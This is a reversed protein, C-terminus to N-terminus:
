KEISKRQARKCASVPNDKWLEELYEIKERNNKEHEELSAIWQDELKAIDTGFVKQWPRGGRRSERYFAKVKEVGYRNLLFAGFSGAEVYSAHQRKRDSVAPTAGKFSMGWDEHKEGLDALPIFSGTRRLAVVWSDNAFGCMPFSLKSGFREETPIGMMNRVLKDQTPFLAHTLKHVMEQPEKIGFVHVVSRRQGNRNEIQFVSFSYGKHEKYLELLVKERGDAMVTMSWFNAAKEYSSEARQSFQRLEEKTLQSDEDIVVLHATEVSPAGTAHFPIFLLGCLALFIVSRLRLYLSTM